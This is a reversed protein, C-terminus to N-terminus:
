LLKIIRIRCNRWYSTGSTSENYVTITFSNGESGRQTGGYFQTYPGNLPGAASGMSTGNVRFNLYAGYTGGSAQRTDYHECEWTIVYYGSTVTISSGNTSAISDPDSTESCGSINGDNNKSGNAFTYLASSLGASATTDVYSKIAASSALTTNNTGSSIDTKVLSSNLNDFQIDNVADYVGDSTIMNQSGNTPTADPNHVKNLAANIQAGTLSLDFNSM